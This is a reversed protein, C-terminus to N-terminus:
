CSLRRRERQGHLQYHQAGSRFEGSMVARRVDPNCRLYDREDFGYERDRRRPGREEYDRDRGYGRDRDGYGPGGYPQASAAGIAGILGLGLAAIACFRKMNREGKLLRLVDRFSSWNLDCPAIV